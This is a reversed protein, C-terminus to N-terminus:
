TRKQNLGSQPTPLAAAGVGMVVVNAQEIMMMMMM